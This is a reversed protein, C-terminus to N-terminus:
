EKAGTNRRALAIAADGHYARDAFIWANEETLPVCSSCVHTEKGDIDRLVVLGDYKVKGNVDRTTYQEASVYGTKSRLPEKIKYPGIM